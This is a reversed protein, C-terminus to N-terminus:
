QPVIYVNPYPSPTDIETTTADYPKLSFKLGGLLSKAQLICGDLTAGSDFKQVINGDQTTMLSLVTGPSTSIKVDFDYTAALIGAHGVIELLDDRVIKFRCWGIKPWVLGLSIKLDYTVDPQINSSMCSRLSM